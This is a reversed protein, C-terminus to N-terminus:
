RGRAYSFSLMEIDMEVDRPLVNGRVLDVGIM